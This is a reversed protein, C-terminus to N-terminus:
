AWSFSNQGKIVFRIFAHAIPLLSLYFSFFMQVCSIYHNSVGGLGSGEIKDVQIIKWDWDSKSTILWLLPKIVIWGLVKCLSNKCVWSLGLVLHTKVPKVWVKCWTLKLALSSGYHTKPEVWIKVGCHTKPEIWVKYSLYFSIKVVWYISLM